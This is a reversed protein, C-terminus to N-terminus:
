LKPFLTAGYLNSLVLNLYLRQVKESCTSLWEKVATTPFCYSFHYLSINSSGSFQKRQYKYREIWLLSTQSLIAWFHATNVHSPFQRQCWSTPQWVLSTANKVRLLVISCHTGTKNTNQKCLSSHPLQHSMKLSLTVCVMFGWCWRMHGKFASRLFVFRSYLPKLSM